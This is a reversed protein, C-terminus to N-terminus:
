KKLFYEGHHNGHIDAWAEILVYRYPKVWHWRTLKKPLKNGKYKISKNEFPGDNFHCYRKIM